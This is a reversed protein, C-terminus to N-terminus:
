DSKVGIKGWIATPAVGLQTKCFVSFHQYSSFKYENAIEQLSKTGEYIETSIQKAKQKQMWKYPSDNFCRQFKKIFGSTSYNALEALEQVNRAHLCNTAVLQKFQMDKSIICQFFQALDSSSYYYFFLFFLEQRKLGLFYQSHIGDKLYLELLSLYRVIIKNIPLKSFRGSGSKVNSALSEIWKQEACWAEVPVHSVILHAQELVIIECSNDIEVMFMERSFVTHAEDAENEKFCVSGTIVFFIMPNYSLQEEVHCGKPLIINEWIKEQSVTEGSNGL